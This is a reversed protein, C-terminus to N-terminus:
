PSLQKAISLCTMTGKIGHEIAPKLRWIGDAATAAYVALKPTM